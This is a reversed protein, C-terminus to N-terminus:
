CRVARLHEIGSRLDRHPEEAQEFPYAEGPFYHQWEDKAAIRRTTVPGALSAWLTERRGPSVMWDSPFRVEKVVRGSDRWTGDGDQVLNQPYGPSLLEKSHAPYTAARHWVGGRWLGGCGPCELGVAANVLKKQYGPAAAECDPCRSPRALRRKGRCRPGGGGPLSGREAVRAEIKIMAHSTLNRSM